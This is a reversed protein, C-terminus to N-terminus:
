DVATEYGSASAEYTGAAYDIYKLRDVVGEKGLSVSDAVTIQIPESTYVTTSGSPNTYASKAIVTVIDNAQIGSKQLHLINYADVFTKSNVAIPQPIDGPRIITVTYDIGTDPQLTIRTDGPSVTGQLEPLLKLSGGPVLARENDYGLEFGNVTMTITPIQTQADTSFLCCNAAPNIGIIERHHLYFKYTLNGPNYFPPEMGYQVDRAYIFDESTLAAYVNPIPFEPIQIIRYQVDARDLQFVTALGYVDIYSMAEPTVWLVLTDGNEHVPVDIHNYLMTPFKM